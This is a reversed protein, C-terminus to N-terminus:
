RVRGAGRQQKARISRLTKLYTAKNAGGLAVAKEAARAAAALEGLEALVHALNNLADGNDPHRQSARRYASAAARRQKLKYLTNGLGMLAVVNDPWRAAAARYAAAAARAQGAREVGAVAKVYTAEDVPDPFEGPRLVLLAWYGGRAWTREFTELSMRLYKTMGSHLIVDGTGLDYGVVVAYHWRPFMQLGLNQLVIVPRDRSVARFLASLQGVPYAIRGHRRAAALVAPTLSGERGRNYVERVLDDPHVRVGAHALVMALAAPGCEKTRQAYFVPQAVAAKEPVSGPRTRLADLQPTACAGLALALAASFLARRTTRAIM